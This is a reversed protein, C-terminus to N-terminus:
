LGRTQVAHPRSRYKEYRASFPLVPRMNATNDNRHVQRPTEAGLHRFHHIAGTLVEVQQSLIEGDEFGDVTPEATMRDRKSIQGLEIRAGNQIKRRAARVNWAGDGMAVVDGGHVIIRVNQPDGAFTRGANTELPLIQARQRVRRGTEIDHQTRERKMM